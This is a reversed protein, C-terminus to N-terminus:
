VFAFGSRIPLGPKSPRKASPRPASCKGCAHNGRTATRSGDLLRVFGAVVPRQVPVPGSAARGLQAVSFMSHMSQDRCLFDWQKTKAPQLAGALLILEPSFCAQHQGHVIQAVSPTERRM